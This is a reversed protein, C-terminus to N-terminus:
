HLFSLNTRSYCRTSLCFVITSVELRLVRSIIGLFKLTLTREQIGERSKWSTSIIHVVGGSTERKGLEWEAPFRERYFISRASRFVGGIQLPQGLLGERQGVVGQSGLGQLTADEGQLRHGSGRIM